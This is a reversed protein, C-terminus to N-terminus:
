SIRLVTNDPHGKLTIKVFKFIKYRNNFIM